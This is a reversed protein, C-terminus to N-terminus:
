SDERFDPHMGVDGSFDIAVTGIEGRIRNLVERSNWNENSEETAIDECRQAFEKATM